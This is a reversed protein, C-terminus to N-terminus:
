ITYISIQSLGQAVKVSDCITERQTLLLGEVSLKWMGFPKLVKFGPSQNNVGPTEKRQSNQNIPQNTKQM